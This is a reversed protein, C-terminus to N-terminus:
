NQTMTLKKILKSVNPMKNEIAILATTSALNTISLIAKLRM